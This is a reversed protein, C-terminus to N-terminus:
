YRVMGLVIYDASYPTHTTSLALSVPILFELLLRAPVELNSIDGGYGEDRTGQLRVNPWDYSGLCVVDDGTVLQGLRLSEWRGLGLGAARHLM